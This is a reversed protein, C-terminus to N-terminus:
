RAEIKSKIDDLEKRLEKIDDCASRYDRAIGEFRAPYGAISEKVNTTLTLNYGTLLLLTGLLTIIINSQTRQGSHETCQKHIPMEDHPM